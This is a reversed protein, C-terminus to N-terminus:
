GGVSNAAAGDVRGELTGAVDQAERVESIGLAVLEEHAEIVPGDVDHGFLAGVEEAKRPSEVHDALHELVAFSPCGGRHHRLAAADRTQDRCSPACAWMEVSPEPVDDRTLVCRCVDAFPREPDVVEELAGLL